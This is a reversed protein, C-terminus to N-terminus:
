MTDFYDFIKNMESCGHSKCTNPAFPVANQRATKLGGNKNLREYIDPPNNYYEESKEYNSLDPIRKLDPRLAAFDPYFKNTKNYHLLYWYELCPNNVILLINQMWGYNAKRRGSLQDQKALIYKQYLDNFTSLEKANKLPEDLDIILIVFTYEEDLKAKAFDFLEQVKKREPLEPKIRVTKLAACPYHEKAKAVYWKEDKGDVVLAISERGKQKKITRAM